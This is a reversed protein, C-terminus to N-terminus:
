SSTSGGDCADLRDDPPLLWSRMVVAVLPPWRWWLGEEFGEFSGSVRSLPLTPLTPLAPLAPLRRRRPASEGSRTDGMSDGTAAGGDRGSGGRIPPLGGLCSLGATARDAVDEDDEDLPEDADPEDADAPGGPGDPGDPGGCLWLNLAASNVGMADPNM